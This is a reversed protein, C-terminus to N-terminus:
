ITWYSKCLTDAEKTFDTEGYGEVFGQKIKQVCEEDKIKWRIASIFQYYEYAPIGNVGYKSIGSFDILKIGYDKNIIFNGLNADGHTYCTFGPNKYFNKLLETDVSKAMKIFKSHDTFSDCKVKVKKFSHLTKLVQGINYGIKYSDAESVLKEASVGEYTTGLICYDDSEYEFAVNPVDIKLGNNQLDKFILYSNKEYRFENVHTFIKAVVVSNKLYVFVVNDKVYKFSNCTGAILRIRNELVSKRSYMDKKVIYDLVAPDIYEALFNTNNNFICNRILTSSGGQHSFLKKDLITVKCSWNPVNTIQYNHRPVVFWEDVKLHPQQKKKLLTLLQDSGLVSCTYFKNSIKSSIDNIHDTVVYINKHDTITQVIIDIRDKLSSRMPKSKNPSNPVIVVTDAFGTMCKAVEFHGIHFPDFSGSYLCYKSAHQIKDFEM